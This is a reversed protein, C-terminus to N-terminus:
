QLRGLLLELARLLQPDEGREMHELTLQVPIDPQVGVKDIQAGSPSLLRQITIQVASGDSLNLVDARAASGATKEGVVPGLQYEKIASVLLESGSATERDVLVVLPTRPVVPRGDGNIPQRNGARDVAIGIPRSEVFNAAVRALAGFSGGANGRLDLVWARAGRSRGQTLVQQVMEPVGEGFSRIRVIGVLNGRVAGEVRPADVAGRTIQVDLAPQDRRAISLKVPTGQPGRIGSVVETISLGETPRGDVAVIKDAPRLGARQAPSNPFVEVVIPTQNSIRVGIGSFSSENMRRLEEPAIFLSHSDGLSAIMQRLAAWDPRAKSAWEPRRGVVADYAGAFARWDREPNGAPTPAADFPATDLPLAGAKLELDRVSTSAIRILESHDVRDVYRELIFRYVLGIDSSDLTGGAATSSAASRDGAQQPPQGAPERPRSSEQSGSQAPSRPNGLRAGGSASSCAQLVLALSLLLLLAHRAWGGRNVIRGPARFRKM